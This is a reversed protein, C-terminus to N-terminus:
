RAYSGDKMERRQSNIPQLHLLPLSNSGGQLFTTLFMDIYVTPEELRVPYRPKEHQRTM